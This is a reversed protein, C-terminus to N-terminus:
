LFASRARIAAGTITPIRTAIPTAPTADAAEVCAIGLGPGDADAVEVIVEAGGVAGGVVGLTLGLETEEPV